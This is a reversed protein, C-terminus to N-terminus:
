SFHCAIREAVQEPTAESRFFDVFGDEPTVFYSFISHNMLYYEPDDDAKSYAVRYTAAAAHVQEESGTLGIMKPHFVDVYEEVIEVTDRLPDITVFIPTASIGQEELIDTAIANRASDIPCMDPCFTYGFYIISPETIVDADTVTKGTDDVLEFPGGIAAGAVAGGGCDPAERMTIALTGGILAVVGVGASIALIRSM